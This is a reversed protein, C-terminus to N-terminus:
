LTFTSTTESTASLAADGQAKTLAARVAMNGVSHVNEVYSTMFTNNTFKKPLPLKKNVRIKYSIRKPSKDKVMIFVLLWSPAM